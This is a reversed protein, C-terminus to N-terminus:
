LFEALNMMFFFSNMKGVELSKDNLRFFPRLHFQTSIYSESLAILHLNKDFLYEVTKVDVPSDLNFDM